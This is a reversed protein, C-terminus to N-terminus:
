VCFRRYILLKHTRHFERLERGANMSKTLWNIVFRSSISLALVMVTLWSFQAEHSQMGSRWACIRFKCLTGITRILRKVTAILHWFQTMLECASATLECLVSNAFKANHQDFTASCSSACRTPMHWDFAILNTMCTAAVQLYELM